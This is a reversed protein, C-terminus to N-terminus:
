YFVVPGTPIVIEGFVKGRKRGTRSRRSASLVGIHLSKPKWFLALAISIASFTPPPHLPHPTPQKHTTQIPHFGFRISRNEFHFKHRGNVDQHTALSRPHPTCSHHGSPTSSSALHHPLSYTRYYTNCSRDSTTYAKLYSM